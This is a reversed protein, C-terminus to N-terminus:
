TFEWSLFYIKKGKALHKKEFHTQIELLRDMKGSQYIDEIKRTIQAGFEQVSEISYRYLNEDDTKLHVRGGNKLLLKYMKLFKEATLRKKIQGKKPFPDPFTIWIKDISKPPLFDTINDIKTRLFIVNNLKETQAQRAGYWLREGQIDAGIFGSDSFLKAQEITYEGRGCGIELVITQYKELFLNLDNKASSSTHEIVNAM